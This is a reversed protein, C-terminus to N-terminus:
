ILFLSRVHDGGCQFCGSQAGAGPDGQKFSSSGGVGGKKAWGADDKSTDQDRLHTYKSQSRKGFKRNQMAKPLASMDMITGETPATYDRSM